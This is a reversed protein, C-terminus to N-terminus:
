RQQQYGSNFRTWHGSCELGILLAPTKSLRTSSLPPLQYTLMTWASTDVCSGICEGFRIPEAAATQPECAQQTSCCHWRQQPEATVFPQKIFTAAMPSLMDAAAATAAAAIIPAHALQGHFACAALRMNLPRVIIVWVPQLAEQATATAGRGPNHVHM